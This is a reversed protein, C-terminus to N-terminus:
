GEVTNIVNQLYPFDAILAEDMRSVVDYLSDTHTNGYFYSNGIKVYSRAIIKTTYATKNDPIGMMVGTFIVGTDTDRFVKDLSATNDYAKGYVYKVGSDFTLENDGILHETTVIFGYEVVDTSINRVKNSVEANFRIGIPSTTRVETTNGTVPASVEYINEEADFDTGSKEAFLANRLVDLRADETALLLEEFIGCVVDAGYNTYHVSDHYIEAREEATMNGFRDATIDKFNIVPVNVGSAESAANMCKIIDPDGDYYVGNEDVTNRGVPAIFVPNGGAATIEKAFRVYNALSDNYSLPLGYILNGYNQWLTSDNTGLAIFVYDGPKMKDLASRYNQAEENTESFYSRTSIGGVAYNVFELDADWYDAYLEIWGLPSGTGACLSDGLVYVTVGSARRLESDVIKAIMEVADGMTLEANLDADNDIVGARMLKQVEATENTQASLAKFENDAVSNAFIKVADLITANADLNAIEGTVGNALVAEYAENADAYNNKLGYYKDYLRAAFGIVDALTLVKDADFSDSAPIIAAGYAAKIFTLENDSAGAFMGDALELNYEFGNVSIENEYVAEVNFTDGYINGAFMENAMDFTVSQGAPVTIDTGSIKWASVGPLAPAEFSDGTVLTIEPLTGNANGLSAHVKYSKKAYVAELDIKRDSESTTIDEGFAYEDEGMVFGTIEYGPKVFQLVDTKSPAKLTEGPVFFSTVTDDGEAGLGTVNYTANKVYLAINDIYFMAGDKNETLNAYFSHQNLANYAGDNIELAVKVPYYTDGATNAVSHSAQVYDAGGDKYATANVKSVNDIASAPIMVDAVLTYVGKDGIVYMNNDSMRISLQPWTGTTREVCVAMNGKGDDKILINDVGDGKGFTFNNSWKSYASNIYSAKHRTNTNTDAEYLAKESVSEFTELFVLEGYESHILSKYVATIELNEDSKKFTYKDGPAYIRDNIVFGEPMKGDPTYAKLEEYSPLTLTEGEKASVVKKETKAEDLYVTAICDNAVANSWVPYLVIDKNELYINVDATVSGEITSWGLFEAGEYSLTESPTLTEPLGAIVGDNTTVAINTTDLEYKVIDTGTTSDPMINKYTVKYYPIVAVNDICMWYNNSYIAWPEVQFTNKNPINDAGFDKSIYGGDWNGTTNSRMWGGGLGGWQTCADYVRAVFYAPRDVTADATFLVKVVFHGSADTVGNTNRFRLMNGRGSVAAIEYDVVASSMWRPSITVWKLDATTDFTLANETGTFINTGPTLVTTDPQEEDDDTTGETWVPYLVIDENALAVSTMKETAAEDTSWGVLTYGEATLEVSEDVPYSAPLGSLGNTGTTFAAKEADTGLYYKVIDEGTSGDPLVNKYTIQYYPIVALDDLMNTSVNYYDQVWIAVNDKGYPTDAGTDVMKNNYSKEGYAQTEGAPVITTGNIKIATWQVLANVITLAPRDITGPLAVYANFAVTNGPTNLKLYGSSRTATGASMTVLALDDDSSFTLPVTTGTFANVGPKVTYEQLNATDDKEQKVDATEATDLDISWVPMVSSFLMCLCLAVALFKKTNKM